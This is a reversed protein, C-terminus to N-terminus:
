WFLGRPKLTNFTSKARAFRHLLTNSKTKDTQINTCYSFVQQGSISTVQYFHTNQQGHLSNSKPSMQGQSKVM